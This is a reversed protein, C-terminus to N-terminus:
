LKLEKKIAAYWNRVSCGGNVLQIQLSVSINIYAFLALQRYDSLDYFSSHCARINCYFFKDILHFNYHKSFNEALLFLLM